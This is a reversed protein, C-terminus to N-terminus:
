GASTEKSLARRGGLLLALLLLLQGVLMGVIEPWRIGLWDVRLVTALGRVLEVAYRDFFVVVALAVLAAPLAVAATWFAGTMYYQLRKM